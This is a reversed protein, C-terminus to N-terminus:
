VSAEVPAAESPTWNWDDLLGVNQNVSATAEGQCQRALLEKALLSGLLPDVPPEPAAAAPKDAKRTAAEKKQQIAAKNAAAMQAALTKKAALQEAASQHGLALNAVCTENAVTLRALESRLRPDMPGHQAAKLEQRLGNLSELVTAIVNPATM